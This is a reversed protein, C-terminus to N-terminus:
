RSNIINSKIGIETLNVTTGNNITIGQENQLRSVM